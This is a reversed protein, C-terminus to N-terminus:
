VAAAAGTERTPWQTELAGRATAAGLGTPCITTDGGVVAQGGVVETVVEVAGDGSGIAVVSSLWASARYQRRPSRERRDCRNRHGIDKIGDGRVPRNEESKHLERERGWGGVGHDAGVAALTPM